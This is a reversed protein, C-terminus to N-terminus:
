PNRARIADAIMLITPVGWTSAMTNFAYLVVRTNEPTYGAGPVIQDLSPANWAKPAALLDFPLGTVECAGAEIRAQIDRWDISFTLGKTKARQKADSTLVLGRKKLRVTRQYIRKADSTWPKTTRVWSNECPRCTWRRYQRQLRFMELPKQGGCGRCVRLGSSAAALSKSASSSQPDAPESSSSGSQGFIDSTM